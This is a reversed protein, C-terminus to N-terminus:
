AVRPFWSDSPAAGEEFKLGMKHFPPTPNVCKWSMFAGDGLYRISLARRMRGSLNALACHVTRHNFIIADGPEMSYILIGRNSLANISADTLEEFGDLPESMAGGAFRAPMFLTPHRHSGRIFALSNEKAVRDATIWISANKPGDVLYYPQDHHWPTEKARGGKVLVHDHFIRLTNTSLVSSVLDVVAPLRVMSEVDKNRRWNNYDSFFLGEETGASGFNAAMHSPNEMVGQIARELLCLNDSSLLGRVLAVGDEELHARIDELNYSGLSSDSVAM